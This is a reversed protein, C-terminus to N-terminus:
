VTLSSERSFQEYACKERKFPSLQYLPWLTHEVSNLEGGARGAPNYSGGEM